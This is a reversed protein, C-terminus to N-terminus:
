HTVYFSVSTRHNNYVLVRSLQTWHKGPFVPLCVGVNQQVWKDLARVAEPYAAEVSVARVYLTVRQSKTGRTVLAEVRYKKGFVYGSIKSFM